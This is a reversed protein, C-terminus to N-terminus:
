RYKLKYKVHHGRRITVVEAIHTGEDVIAGDLLDSLVSQAREQLKRKVIKSTNSLTVLENLRQQSIPPKRSPLPLLQM